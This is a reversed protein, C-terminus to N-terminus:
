WGNGSSAARWALLTHTQSIMTWRYMYSSGFRNYLNQPRAYMYTYMYTYTPLLLLSAEYQTHTQVTSCRLYRYPIYTYVHVHVRVCQVHVRVPQVYYNCHSAQVAHTSCASMSHLSRAAVIKNSTVLCCVHIFGLSCMIAM